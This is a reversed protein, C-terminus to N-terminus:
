KLRGGSKRKIKPARYIYAFYEVHKAAKAM